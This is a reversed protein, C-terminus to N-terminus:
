QEHPPVAELFGDAEAPQQQRQVAEQEIQDELAYRQQEQEEFSMVVARVEQPPDIQEVMERDAQLMQEQEEANFAAAQWQTESQDPMGLEAEAAHMPAPQQADEDALAEDNGSSENGKNNQVKDDASQDLAGTTSRIAPPEQAVEFPSLAQTDVSPAASNNEVDQSVPLTQQEPLLLYGGLLLGSIVVIWKTKM